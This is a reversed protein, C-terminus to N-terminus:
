SHTALAVGSEYDHIRNAAQRLIHTGFHISAHGSCSDRMIAHELFETGTAHTDNVAGLVCRQAAVHGELKKRRIPRSVLISQFAKATFRTGGGSEVMRVDAGNIFDALMLALWEDGHFQQLACVRWCM